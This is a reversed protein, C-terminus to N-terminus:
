SIKSGQVLLCRSDALNKVLIMSLGEMVYQLIRRVGRPTWDGSCVCFRSSLHPFQPPHISLIRSHIRYSSQLSCHGLGLSPM